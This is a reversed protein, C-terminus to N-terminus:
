ASVRDANGAQDTADAQDDALEPPLGLPMKRHSIGYYRIARDVNCGALVALSIRVLSNFTVTGLDTNERAKAELAKPVRVNTIYEGPQAVLM